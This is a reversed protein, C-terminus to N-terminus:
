SNVTEAEEIDAEIDETACSNLIDKDLKFLLKLKEQLLNQLLVLQECQSSDAVCSDDELIQQAKHLVKHGSRSLWM